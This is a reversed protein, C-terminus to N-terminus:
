HRKNIKPEPLNDQAYKRLEEAQYRLEELNQRPTPALDLLTGDIDLLLACQDLRSRAAGSAPLAESTSPMDEQLPAEALEQEILDQNM